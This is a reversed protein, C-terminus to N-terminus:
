LFDGIDVGERIGLRTLSFDYRVPDEPCISRFAETIELAARMDAQKRRTLELARAIRFMHTDLPIMLRAPDLGSWVGPDVEDKRAMWRLFLHLRKCASGRMPRPLLIGELRDGCGCRLQHSFNELAPLVTADGPRCGTLFCAEMSGFRIVVSRVSGLLASLEGGTTFRHKFDRFTSEIRDPSSRLLFQAPSPQMRELVLAVSRLIQQVRGYALCAAILGVIERDLTENYQHVFELPDPHIFDKRNYRDYLFELSSRNFALKMGEGWGFSHNGNAM